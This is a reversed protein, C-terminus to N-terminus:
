PTPEEANDGLIARDEPPLQKLQEEWETLTQLLKSISIQQHEKDASAQFESNLSEVKPPVM